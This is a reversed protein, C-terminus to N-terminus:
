KWKKLSEAIETFRMGNSAKLLVIDGKKLMNLLFDTAEKNTTFHKVNEENMGRNIAEEKINKAETGVTVLYDIKRDFVFAGVEKHLSKSFEGLELMDGLVAIKRSAKKNKLIELSSKMSDLSANYADNIITIGEKIEFEELRNKTMQFSAIGQKIQESTMKLLRGVAFAVLSNYVFVKGPAPCHIETEKGEYIIMFTSSDELLRINKAQFDSNADIGITVINKKNKEYYNHLLDNDNNIVLIGNEDM